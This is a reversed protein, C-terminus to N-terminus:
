VRRAKEAPMGTATDFYRSQGSQNLSFNNGSIMREDDTSWFLWIERRHLETSQHILVIKRYNSM